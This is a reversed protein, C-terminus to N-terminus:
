TPFSYSLLLILSRSKLVKKANNRLMLTVGHVLTTVGWHLLLSDEVEYQGSDMIQVETLGVIELSLHAMERSLAVQYGTSSFVRLHASQTESAYNCSNNESFDTILMCDKLKM